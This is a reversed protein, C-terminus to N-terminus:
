GEAAMQACCVRNRGGQKAAYLAADAAAILGTADSADTPLSASGISITVTVEGTKRVAFPQGGIAQRLREAVVLPSPEPQPLIVALEEGGYRCLRDFSRLGGALRECIAVLLLDGSQHGHTDNVQKFHDIDIMLLSVAYNHRGARAIEERLLRDFNRRNYIGTLADHTALRDLEAEDQEIRRGIRGVQWHFLYFLLSGAVLATVSGIYVAITAAEVDDTVDTLLALHAVHNGSADQLPLFILRYSSGHEREDIIVDSTLLTSEDIHSAILPSIKVTSPAGIVVPSFRDWDPSRGMARMGAEWKERDLVDKHVLLVVELEFFDRLTELVRDVELGLEVYGILERSQEDYWPEVLRLTFTGLPGMEVGYSATGSQEAVMTTYRDIRDGFRQPAHVRLLNIRDPGTFYFHTIQMHDHFDDYIPAALQLLTRRDKAKLAARLRPDHHISALLTQLAQADYHISEEYFEHASARIRLVAADVSQSKQYILVLTLAMVIALIAIGLPVLFLLRLRRTERGIPLATESDSKSVEQQVAGRNM